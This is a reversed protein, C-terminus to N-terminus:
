RRGCVGRSLHHLVGEEGTRDFQGLLAPDQQGAPDGGGGIGPQLSMGDRPGYQQRAGPEQLQGRRRCPVGPAPLDVIQDDSGGEHQRGAPGVHLYLYRCCLAPLPPTHDTGPAVAVLPHLVGRRRQHLLGAALVVRLPRGARPRRGPGFGDRHGPQVLFQGRAAVAVTRGEVAQAPHPPRVPVQEGLGYQGLPVLVAAEADMGRQEVGCQVRQGEGMVGLPLDPQREDEASRHQPPPADTGQADPQPDGVAGGPQVGDRVGALLHEAARPQHQPGHVGAPRGRHSGGGRQVPQPVLHDPLRHRVHGARLPGGPGPKHEGEGGGVRRPRCWRDLVGHGDREVPRSAAGPERGRKGVRCGVPHETEGPARLVQQQGHLREVVRPHLCRHPADGVPRLVIRVRRGHPSHAPGDCQFQGLPPAAQHVHWFPAGLRGGGEQRPHQRSVGALVLHADPVVSHLCASQHPRIGRRIGSRRAPRRGAGDQDGTARARQTRM